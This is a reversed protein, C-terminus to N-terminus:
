EKYFIMGSEAIKISQKLYGLCDSALRRYSYGGTQFVNKMSFWVVTMTAEMLLIRILKELPHSKLKYLTYSQFIIHPLEDKLMQRCISKLAPSDVCEALARYYSLAIMEATVLVIIESRLGGTKRLIRFIDDFVSHTRIPIQYYDMYKKLYASHWNEERVFWKMAELYEPAHNRSAYHKACRLLFNGESAEGKQFNQISPFILLKEQTTLTPEATFDIQLRHRHNKKFHALWDFQSLDDIPLTSLLIM